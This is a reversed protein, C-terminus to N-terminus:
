SSKCKRRGYHAAGIMSASLVVLGTVGLAPVAPPTISPVEAYAAESEGSVNGFGDWAFTTYVHLVGPDPAADDWESSTTTALFMGDRHVDYDTVGVDDTSDAWDLEITEGVVAAELATPTSPPLLDDGVFVWNSLPSVNGAADVAAVVYGNTAGPTYGGSPPPLDVYLLNNGGDPLLSSNHFVHYTYVGVDDVSADWSLVVATGVIENPSLNTPASPASTDPSALVEYPFQAITSVPAGVGGNNTLTLSVQYVGPLTGVPAHVSFNEFRTTQGGEVVITQGASVWGAIWGPGPLVPSEDYFAKCAGTSADFNTVDLDYFVTNGAEVATAGQPVVLAAPATPVYPAQDIQVRVRNPNMSNVTVVLGCSNFTEGVALAEVFVSEKSGTKAVEHIHVTNRLATGGADTAVLSLNDDFNVPKRYSVFTDVRKDVIMSAGHTNVVVAQLDAGSNALPYIDYVASSDVPHDANRVGDLWGKYYKNVAGAHVGDGLGM